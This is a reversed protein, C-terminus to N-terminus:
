VGKRKKITFRSYGTKKKKRKKKKKEEKKREFRRARGKRERIQQASGIDGIDHLM